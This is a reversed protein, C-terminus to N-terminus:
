LFRPKSKGQKNSRIESHIDSQLALNEPSRTLQSKCPLSSYANHGIDFYATIFMCKIIRGQFQKKKGEYNHDIKKYNLLIPNKRPKVVVSIRIWRYTEWLIYFFLLEKMKKERLPEKRLRFNENEVAPLIKM